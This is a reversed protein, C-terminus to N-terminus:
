NLQPAPPHAPSLATTGCRKHRREFLGGVTVTVRLGLGPGVVVVGGGAAARGGGVRRAGTPCRSLLLHYEHRHVGFCL